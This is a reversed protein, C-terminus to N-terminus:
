LLYTIYINYDRIFVPIPQVQCVIRLPKIVIDMEKYPQGEKVNFIQPHYAVVTLTYHM